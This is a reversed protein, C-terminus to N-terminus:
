RNYNLLAKADESLKEVIDRLSVGTQRLQGNFKRASAPDENDVAKNIKNILREHAPRMPNRSM